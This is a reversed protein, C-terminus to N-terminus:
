FEIYVPITQVIILLDLVFIWLNNSNLKSKELIYNGFIINYLGVNLVEVFCVKKYVLNYGSKNYYRVILIFFNFDYLKTILFLNNYDLVDIRIIPCHRWKNNYYVLIM